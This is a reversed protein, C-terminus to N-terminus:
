IEDSQEVSAALSKEERIVAILERLELARYVHGHVRQEYGAHRSFTVHDGVQVIERVLPDTGLAIVIGETPQPLNEELVVAHLGAAKARATVEDVPEIPDVFIRSGVPFILTM